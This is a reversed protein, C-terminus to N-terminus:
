RGWLFHLALLVLMCLVLRWWLRMWGRVGNQLLPATERPPATGDAFILLGIVRIHSADPAVYYTHPFSHIPRGQAGGLQATEKKRRVSPHLAVQCIAVCSLFAGL